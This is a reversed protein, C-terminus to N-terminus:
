PRGAPDIKFGAERMHRVATITVLTGDFEYRIVYGSNGYGVLWEREHSSTEVARGAAPFVMPELVSERIAAIAEIAAHPNNRALFEHLRSLDRSARSSWLLRAM